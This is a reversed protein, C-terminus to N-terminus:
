MINIMSNSVINILYKKLTFKVGLRELDKRPGIGSLMLIRPTNITGACLIVETCTLVLANCQKMVFKREEFGVYYTSVKIQLPAFPRGM